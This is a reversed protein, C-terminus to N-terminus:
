PVLRVRTTDVRVSRAPTALISIRAAAPDPTIASGRGGSLNLTLSTRSSARVLPVAHPSYSTIMWGAARRSAVIGWGDGGVVSVDAGPRASLALTGSIRVDRNTILESGTGPAMGLTMVAPAAQCWFGGGRRITWQQGALEFPAFCRALTAARNPGPRRELVGSPLRSETRYGAAIVRDLKWFYNAEYAGYASAYEDEFALESGLATGYDVVYQFRRDLLARVLGMPQRGAALLDAANPVDPYVQGRTLDTYFPHFLSGRHALARLDAPISQTYESRLLRLDFRPARLATALLAALVCVGVAADTLGRRAGPRRTTGWAIAAIAGLAWIVGFYQNPNGGQKSRFYIAFPLGLLAFLALLGAAGDLRLRNRWERGLALATLAAAWLAPVGVVNLLDSAAQGAGYIRAERTPLVFNFYVEWGGTLLALVGLVILNVALLASLVAATSRISRRRRASLLVLWVAYAVSAAITTQKCWFALTLMTVALLASRTSENARVGSLLGGFAFAWALEDSWGLYLVGVASTVLWVSVGAMGSAGALTWLNRDGAARYSLQAVLGALGLTALVTLFVPWGAWLSLHDLVAILAPLLPTYLLGTYGNGSPNHYLGHGLYLSLADHGESRFFGIDVSPTSLLSVVTIAMGTLAAVAFVAPLSTRLAAAASTRPV